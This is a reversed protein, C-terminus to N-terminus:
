HSIRTIFLLLLILSVTRWRFFIKKGTRHIYVWIYILHLRQSRYNEGSFMEDVFHWGKQM